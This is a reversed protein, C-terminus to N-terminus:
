ARIRPHDGPRVGAFPDPATAVRDAALARAAREVAAPDFTFVQADCDLAAHVRAKLAIPDHVFREKAKRGAKKILREIKLAAGVDGYVRWCQSLRVPKFSRTYRAGVTGDLHERFRRVLNTSYGVYLAGNSCEIMYVWFCTM